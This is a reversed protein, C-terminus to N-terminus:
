AQDLIAFDIGAFRCRRRIRWPSAVPLFPEPCREPLEWIFTGRGAWRAFHADGLLATAATAFDAYPPDAFIVEGRGALQPLRLHVRCADVAHIEAIGTVGARRVAALNEAMFRRVLPATECCHAETAGRSLAELAFAGSGAFLDIVVRGSWPGQSDFLGARARGLTPRVQRGPPVRLRIGGALGGIIQM